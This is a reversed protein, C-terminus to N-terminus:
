VADRKKKFAMVLALAILTSGNLLATSEVTMGTQPLGPQRPASQTPPAPDPETPDPETADPDTSDPETPDPDTADPETADPGTPDPEIPDPDTPDPDTPEPDTPDPETEDPEAADPETADPETADPETPDPETPDTVEDFHVMHYTTESEINYGLRDNMGIIRATNEFVTTTTLDPDVTTPVILTFRENAGLTAIIWEIHNDTITVEVRSEESLNVATSPDDGFYGMLEDAEFNLHEPLHDEVVLHRIGLAEENTITIFYTIVDEREVLTPAEATGSIPDSVKSISVDGERLAVTTLPTEVLGRETTTGGNLLTLDLRYAARNYALKGLDGDFPASMHITMVVSELEGFVFASGDEATSLDIAIATVTTRDEPEVTSWISTNTLDAHSADNVPDLGSETSYFVVPHIGRSIAHSLDIGEFTGQWHDNGDHAVELVDFMVLNTAQNMAGNQFRLRYSYSGGLPVSTEQAYSIDGEGRVLKSFGINTAMLTNLTHNNQTYLTSNENPDFMGAPALGTMLVREAETFHPHGSADDPHANSGSLAGNRSQYAAINRLNSGFDGINIWPYFVSFTVNFGTGNLPNSGSIQAGNFNNEQARVHIEIMTQGSNRYNETVFLTHEAVRNLADTAVISTPDLTAGLPLLDYFVGERQEDLIGAMTELSIGGDFTNRNFSHRMQIHYQIVDRQNIVDSSVNQVTKNLINIFSARGLQATFQGRQFLQGYTAFDLEILTAAIVGTYNAETAPNALDGEDDTVMLKAANHIQVVEQDEIISLVRETPRLEIDFFLDFSVNYLGNDHVAKIQYADVNRLNFWPSDLAITPHYTSFYIWEPHNMTRYYIRIPSREDNALHSSGIFQGGPAFIPIYADYHRISVRTFRYDEGTLLHFGDTNQLHVHDDVVTTTFPVTGNQTLDFGNVDVTIRGTASFNGIVQNPQGILPLWFVASLDQPHGTELRDLIGQFDQFNAASQLSAVSAQKTIVSAVGEGNDGGGGGINLAEYIFVHYRERIIQEEDRGDFIFTVRNTVEQEEEGTRPFRVIIDTWLTQLTAPPTAFTQIAAPSENFAATDGLTWTPFQTVNGVAHAWAVIEGGNEPAEVATMTLPQTNTAALGRQLRYHIYFYNYHQEPLPGWASQWVRHMQQFHKNTAAEPTPIIRTTLDLSLSQSTSTQNGFTVTGQIAENRFGNAITSPLYLYGIDIIVRDEGTITRFNTIVIEDDEFRFYYGTEGEPTHSIPIEVTGVPNGDRDQFLFRPLRIEIQGPAFSTNTGPLFDVRLEIRQQTNAAPDLALHADPTVLWNLQLPSAESSLAEIRMERQLMLESQSPISRVSTADRLEDDVVEDNVDAENINEGDTTDEIMMEEETMEDLTLDLSLANSQDTQADVTITGQINANKFGTTLLAPLYTYEVEFIMRKGGTITQFNTIIIEDDDLRFYYGTEGEPRDSISLDVEGVNEGNQNQFLFRPLRIEIEGVEFTAGIELLVDVQLEVRQLLDETPALSLHSSMTDKWNLQLDFEPNSKVNEAATAISTPWIATHLVVFVMLIKILKRMREGGIVRNVHHQKQDNIM